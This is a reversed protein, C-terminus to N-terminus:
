PAVKVTVSHTQAKGTAPDIVDYTVKDTGTLVSIEHAQAATLPHAPAPHSPPAAEAGAGTQTSRAGPSSQSPATASKPATSQAFAASALFLAPVALSFKQM